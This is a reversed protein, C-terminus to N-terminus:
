PAILGLATVGGAVGVLLLLGAWVVLARSAAGVCCVVVLLAAVALQVWWILGVVALFALGGSALRWAASRGPQDLATVAALTGALLWPLGGHVWGGMVDRQWGGLWSDSAGTGIGLFWGARWGAAAVGLAVLWSVAAGVWRGIGAPVCTTALASSLLWLGPALLALPAHWELHGPLMPGPIVLGPLDSM